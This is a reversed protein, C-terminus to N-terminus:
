YFCKWYLVGWANALISYLILGKAWKGKSEITMCALLFLYPTFDMSYRMGFQAQGNGYNLLFPVATAIATAWLLWCVPKKWPCLLALFLAPSVITLAVGRSTPILYPFDSTLVPPMAFISYLNYSLFRTQLPGGFEKGYAKLLAPQEKAPVTCLLDYEERHYDKLYTLSYSEDMITGFRVYNLLMYLGGFIAAGGAFRLLAAWKNKRKLLIWGAFFFGGLLASLRCCVALGFFLGALFDHINKPEERFLFCFAILLFFLTSIHGLLWSSGWSACWFHVTGFSLLAVMWLRNRFDGLKLETLMHWCLGVNASALLMCLFASNFGNIGLIAVFPLCLLAPGPAFHVYTKGAFCISELYDPIEPSDLRGHLWADALYSYNNYPTHIRKSFLAYVLFASLALLCEMWGKRKCVTKWLTKNQCLKRKGGARIEMILIILLAALTLVMGSIFKAENTM